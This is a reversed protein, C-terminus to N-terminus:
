SFVGYDIRDLLEEVQREGIETDLQSVPSDGGLAQNEQHLWRRATQQSGFVDTAQLTVRAIRYLRDSEIPSLVKSAKRRALTRSAVGVLQALTAANLELAKSVAEFAAYPFGHRLAERLDRTDEIRQPFIRQGGLLAVLKRTEAEPHTAAM